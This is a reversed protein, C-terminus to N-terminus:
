KNDITMFRFDRVAGMNITKCESFPLLKKFHYWGFNWTGTPRVEVMNTNNITPFSCTCRHLPTQQWKIVTNWSFGNMWELTIVHVSVRAVLSGEQMCLFYISSTCTDATSVDFVKWLKPRYHCQSLTQMRSKEAIRGATGKKYRWCNSRGLCIPQSAKHWTTPYWGKPPAYQRCRCGLSAESVNTEQWM